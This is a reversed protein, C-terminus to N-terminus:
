LPVGLDDMKQQSKGNYIMWKPYGWQHFGGHPPDDPFM